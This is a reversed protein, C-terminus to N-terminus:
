VGIMSSFSVPMRIVAGWTGGTLKQKFSSTGRVMPHARMKESFAAYGTKQNELNEVFMQIMNGGAIGQPNAASLAGYQVATEFRINPFNEKLLQYVNVGFSNTTTLAMEVAPSMAIVINSRMDVLGATQTVLAIFISQIDAFIENATATVVNNTLWRTNGSAKLAPTLSAPLNPDNILGYNQLGLVGFFYTLNQFRNMVGAAAQDMESVWNLRALGARDIERDGYEKIIQFIYNQRAPWNANVGVHGNENYDGYSSVEGDAEVMPFLITDDVWTGKKVEGVIEAAKTPAFLIRFVDPDITTTLQMPIGSNPDTVLTPQADMAFITGNGLTYDLKMEEPLYSLVNPLIVGRAALTGAHARYTSQAEQMNM